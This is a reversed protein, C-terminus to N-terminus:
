GIAPMPMALHPCMADVPITRNANEPAYGLVRDQLIRWATLPTGPKDLVINMTHKTGNHWYHATYETYLRPLEENHLYHWVVCQGCYARENGNMRGVITGRQIFAGCSACRNYGVPLHFTSCPEGTHTVHGFLGPFDDQQIHLRDKQPLTAM